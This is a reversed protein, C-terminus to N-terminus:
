LGGLVSNMAVPAAVSIAVRLISGQAVGLSVQGNATLAVDATNAANRVPFWTVGDLGLYQLTATAGNWNSAECRWVYDGGAIPGVQAGTETANALMTYQKKEGISGGDPTLAVTVAAARPNGASDTYVLTDNKKAYSM